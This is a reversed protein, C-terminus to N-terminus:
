GVGRYEVSVMGNGKFTLLHEGTGLQLDLIKSRGVPLYYTRGGYELTMAVSCDIVPVVRKRRGPILLTMTENVELDKYNRIIGDVFCFTDWVWPELSSYREYKYPEVDASITFHDIGKFDKETEARLRGEYYYARDSDLIVKRRQGHCYDLIDSSRLHWETLHYQRRVFEMKIERNGYKVDGVLAESLDIVGDRGPIEIFYTKQEPDSIEVKTCVLNWDNYTHKDGILIGHEFM